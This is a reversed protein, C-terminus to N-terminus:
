YFSPMKWISVGQPVCESIDMLTQYDPEHRIAVIIIKINNESIIRHLDATKGLVKIGRYDFNAKNDDNDAFGTLNFKLVPRKLIEDAMLRGIEGAGIILVNTDAKIHKRHWYFLTRFMSILLFVLTTELLLFKFVTRNQVHFMLLMICVPMASLVLGELLLYSDKLLFNYTRIKYYGKLFLVYLGILTLAAVTLWKYEIPLAIKQYLFLSSFLFILMDTFLLVYVSKSFIKM